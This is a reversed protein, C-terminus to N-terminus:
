RASLIKELEEVGKPIDATLNDRGEATVLIDDEIRVGIGRYAPDVEAQASIYLGPEITLVFGPELPRPAGAHHYRGVDHVDMGLWHSTRHMYFKKYDGREIVQQKDGSLLGLTLLGDVLVDITREHISEVTAGPQVADIAALQARLVLEYIARQAPTFRGSVPFTRTVDSAYYGFEAGADILVLDGDELRRDNRRSHLITANPGAGVISGYAPR